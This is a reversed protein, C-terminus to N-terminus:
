ALGTLDPAGIFFSIDTAYSVAAFASLAIPLFVAKFIKKFAM